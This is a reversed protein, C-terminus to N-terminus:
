IADWNLDGPPHNRRRRAKTQVQSLPDDRLELYREVSHALILVSRGDRKVDIKGDRILRDVFDLSRDLAAALSRRTYALKKPSESKM